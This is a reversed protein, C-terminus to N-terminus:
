SQAVLKCRPSLEMGALSQALGPFAPMHIAREPNGAIMMELDSLSRAIWDVSDRIQVRSRRFGRPWVQWNSAHPRCRKAIASSTMGGSAIAVFELQLTVNDKPRLSIEFEFGTESTSIPTVDSEITTERM